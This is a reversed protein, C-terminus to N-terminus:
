RPRSFALRHGPIEANRSGQSAPRLFRDERGDGAKFARLLGIFDPGQGPDANGIERQTQVVEKNFQQVARFVLGECGGEM